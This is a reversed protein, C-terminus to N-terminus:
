RTQSSSKPTSPFKSDEIHVIIENKPDDFYCQDELTVKKIVRKLQAINKLVQGFNIEIRHAYPDREPKTTGESQPQYMSTGKGHWKVVNEVILKASLGKKKPTIRAYKYIYLLYKIGLNDKYKLKITEGLGDSDPLTIIWLNREYDHIFTYEYQVKPQTTDVSQNESGWNINEFIDLWTDLDFYRYFYNRLETLSTIAKKMQDLSNFHVLLNKLLNDHLVINLWNIYKDNIADIEQDEDAEDDEDDEDNDERRFYIKDAIEVDTPLLNFFLGTLHNELRDFSPLEFKIAEDNEFITYSRLDGRLVAKTNKTSNLWLIIRYRLDNIDKIPLDILYHSIFASYEKGLNKPIKSDPFHYYPVDEKKILINKIESFLHDSDTMIFFIRKLGVLDTVSQLVKPAIILLCLNGRQFKYSNYNKGNHVVESIRTFVNELEQAIGLIKDKQDVFHYNGDFYRAFKYNSLKSSVTLAKPGFFPTIFLCESNNLDHLLEDLSDVNYVTVENFLCLIRDSVTSKNSIGLFNSLQTYIIKRNVVDCIIVISDINNEFFLQDKIIEKVLYPTDLKFHNNFEVILKM